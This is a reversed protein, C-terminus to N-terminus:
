VQYMRDRTSYDLIKIQTKTFEGLLLENDPSNDQVIFPRYPTHAYKEWHKRGRSLFFDRVNKWDHILFSLQNHISEELGPKRGPCMATHLSIVPRNDLSVVSYPYLRCDMPRLNYIACGDAVSFPCRKLTIKPIYFGNQLSFSVRDRWGSKEAWQMVADYERAEFLPPAGCLDLNACCTGNKCSKCSTYNTACPVIFDKTM